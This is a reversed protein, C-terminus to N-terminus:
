IFLYMCLVEKQKQTHTKLSMQFLSFSTDLSLINAPLKWEPFHWPLADQTGSLSNQEGPIVVYFQSSNVSYNSVIFNRSAAATAFFKQM